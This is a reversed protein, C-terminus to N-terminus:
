VILALATMAGAPVVAMLFDDDVYRVKIMESAVGLIAAVAALLLSLYDSRMDWLVLVSASLCLYVILSLPVTTRDRYGALRMEGSLPDVLAMAVLAAAAIDHPCLWLVATIGAAAWAFSAIQNREHPRLGMFSMGKRLRYAEFLMIGAFFIVVLTWRHWGIFPLNVPLAYYLPTLAISAHVGRRVLADRKMSRAM